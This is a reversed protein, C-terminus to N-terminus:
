SSGGKAAKSGVKAKLLPVSEAVAAITWITQQMNSLNFSICDSRYAQLSTM